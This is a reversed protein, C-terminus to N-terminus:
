KIISISYKEAISDVTGDQILETMIKNVEETVNSEKRFAVGYEESELKINFGLNANSTGEGTMSRALTLDIICADAAGSTVETLALAQTNSVVVDALGEKQAIKEGASGGEVAVTLDKLSEIDTYKDLNAQKMVVVQANEAYANTINAAKKGEETITMGNWVCDISKAKLENYKNDWNIEVFKAKVGLKECVAQAFETDFGVLTGNEDYYNMPKAETIGIIMEGKEKIYDLDSAANTTKSCAAFSGFVFLTALILAMVKSFKKM